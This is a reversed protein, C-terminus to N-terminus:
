QQSVPEGFEISSSANFVQRNGDVLHITTSASYGPTSELVVYRHAPNIRFAVQALPAITYGLTRCRFGPRDAQCVGAQVPHDSLNVFYDLVAPTTALDATWRHNFRGIIRGEPSRSGPRSHPVSVLTNGHLTEHVGTVAVDGERAMPKSKSVIRMWGHSPRSQSLDMRVDLQGSGPVTKEISEVLCGNASYREIEVDEPKKNRNSLHISEVNGPGFPVALFFSERENRKPRLAPAPHDCPPEPTPAAAPSPTQRVGATAVPLVVAQTVPQVGAGSGAQAGHERLLEALAPFGKASAGDLPTAGSNSAANVDAKAALLLEAVDKHGNLAAAYLPTAGDNSRANVDARAALLLEVADTHGNFAAAWLPTSGNNARADADARAALLLAVIEKRGRAAAEYLATTGANAKADVEAGAALLLEAVEKRGNFAAGVLPTAGTNSRINVDAHSALLLQAVEKRGNFAAEYLPTGGDNAKANVDAHNAILLAAVDEFGNAAAWHLPTAGNSDRANVDARNAILFEVLDQHGAAAAWHLPTKGQNDRSSVLDPSATVLTRLRALDGDRATDHIEASFAVACCLLALGVASHPLNM